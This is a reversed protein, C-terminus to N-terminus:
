QFFERPLPRDFIAVFVIALVALFGVAYGALHTYRRYGLALATGVAFLATSTFFGISDVLLAFACCSVLFVGFNRWNGVIPNGAVPRRLTARVLWVLTVVASAVFVVKPFMAARSPFTDAHIWGGAILCLVLIAAVQERNLFAM